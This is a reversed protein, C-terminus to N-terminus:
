DIKKFEADDLTQKFLKGPLFSVKLGEIYSANFEDETQAAKSKAILGMNGFEGLDVKYGDNLTEPIIQLFGEIVSLVDMVNLSSREAIQKAIYRVNRRGKSNISGYYKPVATQDGPKKRPIVKYNISM